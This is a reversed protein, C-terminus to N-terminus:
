SFAVAVSPRTTRVDVALHTEIDEGPNSPCSPSSHDLMVSPLVLSGSPPLELEFGDLAQSTARGTTTSITAPPRHATVLLSGALLVGGRWADGPAASHDM